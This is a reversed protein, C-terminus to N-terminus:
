SFIGLAHEHQALIPLMRTLAAGVMFWGHDVSMPVGVAHVGARHAAALMALYQPGYFPQRPNAELILLTAARQAPTLKSVLKLPSYVAEYAANGGYIEYATRTESSRIGAQYYGNIAVATSFLDPHRLVLMAACFGGQSWGMVARSAPTAITRFHSDVLPVVTNTVYREFWMRGNASDSCESTPFPAPYPSGTQRIFVYISAPLAGSKIKADMYAQFDMHKRYGSYEFPLEYVVPYRRGSTAYGAPLYVTVSTYTPKASQWPAPLRFAQLSSAGSPAWATWPAGPLLVGAPLAITGAPQVATGAPASTAPATATAAPTAAPVAAGGAGAPGAPGSTPAAVASAAASAASTSASSGCAAALTMVALASAVLAARRM